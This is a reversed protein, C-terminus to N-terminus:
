RALSMGFADDGDQALDVRRQGEVLVGMENQALFHAVLARMPRRGAVGQEHLAAGWVVTSIQSQRNMFV